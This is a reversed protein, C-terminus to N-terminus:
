TRGTKLCITHSAISNPGRSVGERVEADNVYRHLDSMDIALNQAQLSASSPPFARPDHRDHHHAVAPLCLM